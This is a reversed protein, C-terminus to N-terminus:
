NIDVKASNLLDEYKAKVDQLPTDPSADTLHVSQGKGTLDEVANSRATVEQILAQFTKLLHAFWLLCSFASAPM